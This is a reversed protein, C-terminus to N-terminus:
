NIHGWASIEASTLNCSWKPDDFVPTGSFNLVQQWRSQVLEGEWGMYHSDFCNDHCLTQM